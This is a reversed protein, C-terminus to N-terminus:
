SLKASFQLEAGTPSNVGPLLPHILPVELYVAAEGDAFLHAESGDVTWYNMALGAAGAIGAATALWAAPRAAGGARRGYWGARHGLVAAVAGAVVLAALGLLRMYFGAGSAGLLVSTGDGLLWPVAGLGVGLLGANGVTRHAPRTTLWVATGGAIAVVIHWALIGPLQLGSDVTGFRLFLSSLLLLVALGGTAALMRPQGDPGEDGGHENGPEPPQPITTRPRPVADQAGTATEAPLQVRESRPAESAQTRELGSTGALAEM